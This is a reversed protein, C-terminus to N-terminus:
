EVLGEGTAKDVIGIMGQQARALVPRNDRPLSAGRKQTEGAAKPPIGSFFGGPHPAAM